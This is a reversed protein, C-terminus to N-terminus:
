SKKRNSERLKRVRKRYAENLTSDKTFNTSGFPNGVKIKSTKGQTITQKAAGGATNVVPTYPSKGDGGGGGGGGRRGRRGRRGKGKGDDDEEEFIGSDDKHGYDGIEGFPNEKEGTIVVYLAAKEEATKNPYEKEISEAVYELDWDYNKDHRIKYKSCFKNVRKDNWDFQKDSHGDKLCRAANMRTDLYPSAIYYSGDSFGKEAFIMAKDYDDLKSAWKKDDLQYAGSKGIEYAGENLAKFTEVFDKDTYGDEIYKHAREMGKKVSWEKQKICYANAIVGGDYGKKACVYAVYSYNVFDDRDGTERAIANVGKMTNLFAQQYKRKGKADAERYEKTTKLYNYADAHDGQAYKSLCKDTANPIKYKKYIDIIDQMPDNEVDGDKLATQYLKNKLSRLERKMQIKEKPSLNKESDVGQIASDYTFSADGYKAMYQNYKLTDEGDKKGKNLEDAKSWFQTGFKNSFVADKTFQQVVFNNKLFQDPSSWVESLNKKSTQSIGYDYILGLYSDMINDVKKPSINALKGMEKAFWSTTEDYNKWAEGNDINKLESRSLIDGGYWTKNMVTNLVPSFINDEWVNVIGINENASKFMQVFEDKTGYQANDLIYRTAYVFPEVLVSNERPKPIKIFKDKDGGFIAMPIFFNNDKDRTNLSQYAENDKCLIENAMSLSTTMLTLKIMFAALGKGKNETFMRAMKSLGQVSPNLYPVFGANLGKTVVGSRAFNVTIDSANRIATAIIDPKEKKIIDVIRQAYENEIWMTREADPLLKAEAEIERMLEKMGKSGLINKAEKQLTGIFECMRPMMEIFGNFDEIKELGKRITGGEKNLAGIEDLRNIQQLTSYRGGNADYLIRFANNENSVADLARPISRSFWLTDKSNVLAQQADRMGNRFGFIINWDTIFGKYERIHLLKGAKASVEMFTAYDQGSFERLGKAAQKSVPMKVLEGDKYFQINWKGNVEYANIATDLVDEPTAGKPVQSPDIGKARAYMNIMKNQEASSITSITMKALQTYLDEIDDLSGSAKRIGNQVEALTKPMEWMQPAKDVSVRNTPVYNPYIDNLQDLFEKNILGTDLRYKNIYDIYSRIEREFSKVVEEGYMDEVEKIYQDADANTWSWIRKNQGERAFAHKAYMYNSLRQRMETNAEELLNVKEGKYKITFVENLSKGLETGDASARHSEIAAASKNKAVVVNNAQDVLAQGLKRTEPDKSKLLQKGATEFEITSSEGKRRITQGVDKAAEKVSGNEEILDKVAKVVSGGKTKPQKAKLTNGGASEEFAEIATKGEPINSKSNNIVKTLRTSVRTRENKLERLKNATKEAGSGGKKLQKTLGSIQEDLEKVRKNLKRAEEYGYRKEKVIEAVIEDNTRVEVGREQAEKLLADAREQRANRKKISKDKGIRLTKKLTRYEKRLEDDSLKNPATENVVSKRKGDAIDIKNQNKTIKSKQASIKKNLKAIEDVDKSKKVAKQLEKIKDEATKINEKYTKKNAKHYEVEQKELTEELELRKAELEKRKAKKLKGSLREDLKKLEDKTANIEDATEGAPSNKKASYSANRGYYEDYDERMIEYKDKERPHSDLWKQDKDKRKETQRSEWEGKTHLYPVTGNEVLRDIGTNRFGFGGYEGRLNNRKNLLREYKTAVEDGDYSRILDIASYDDTDIGNPLDEKYRNIENTMNEWIEKYADSSAGEAFGEEHQIAHQIEHLLTNEIEDKTQNKNVRIFLANGIAFFEGNSGDLDTKTGFEVQVDKLQPYYNFLVEHDLLDGLRGEEIIAGSGKIDNMKFKLSMDKDSFEFKAKGDTDVVFGTKDFIEDPSSGDKFMQEALEGKEFDKGVAKKGGVAFSAQGEYLVKDRIADTIKAAWVEEGNEALKIKSVGEFEPDLKKMYKNMFKVMDQDYEIEYAGIYKDNWRDAQLKSTSWAVTTQGNEAAERIARKLAYDTYNKKYPADPIQGELKQILEERRVRYDSYLKQADELSRKTRLYEPDAMLVIDRERELRKIEENNKAVITNADEFAERWNARKTTSYAEMVLRDNEQRMKEIEKNKDGVLKESLDWLDNALRERNQEAEYIKSDLGNLEKATSEYEGRPMYADELKNIREKRKRALAANHWDSQIEEIFLVNETKMESSKAFSPISKEQALRHLEDVVTDAFDYIYVDDVRSIVNGTDTSVIEARCMDGDASVDIKVPLDSEDVSVPEGVGISQKDIGYDGYLEDRWHEIDDRVNDLVEINLDMDDLYGHEGSPVKTTFDQVRSHLVVGTDRVGKEEPPSFEDGWHWNMHTEYFESKPLIYEYERYNSGGYEKYDGWRAWIVSTIDNDVGTGDPTRTKVELELSNARIFDLLEEKSVSKRGDLLEEIGVLDVEERKVGSQEFFKRLGKADAARKEGDKWRKEVVEYMKSYFVPAYKNNTAFQAGHANKMMATSIVDDIKPDLSAKYAEDFQKGVSNIFADREAKPTDDLVKSFYTRMKEFTSMDEGALYAFFNNKEAYEAMLDAATEDDVSKKVDITGTELDDYVEKLEDRKANWEDEGVFSKITNIFNENENIALHSLEHAITTKVGRSNTTKSPNVLVMYGGDKTELTVGDFTKNNEKLKPFVEYAEEESMPRVIVNGESRDSAGSIVRATADDVGFQAKTAKIRAQKAKNVDAKTGFKKQFNVASDLHDLDITTNGGDVAKVALSANARAAEHAGSVKNRLNAYEGIEEPSLTLGKAQKAELTTIRKVDRASLVSKMVGGDSTVLKGKADVQVAGGVKTLIKNELESLRTRESSTLQVKESKEQLKALEKADIGSFNNAEFFEKNFTEKVDKSLANKGAKGTRGAIASIPAGLAVNLAANEAMYKGFDKGSYGDQIGKIADISTGISADQLANAVLERKINQKLDSSKIDKMLKELAKSRDGGKVTTEAFEKVADRVRAKGAKTLGKEGAEVGKTLAKGGKSLLTEAAKLSGKATAAYPLIYDIAENAFKASGKYIDKNSFKIKGANEVSKDLEALQKKVSESNDFNNGIDELYKKRYERYTMGNELVDDYKIGNASAFEDLDKAALNISETKANNIKKKEEEAQKEAQRTQRKSLIPVNDITHQKNSFGSAGAELIEEGAKELKKNTKGAWDAVGGKKYTRDGSQYESRVKSLAKQEKYKDTVKAKQTTNARSSIRTVHTAGSKGKNGKGASEEASRAAAGLVNVADRAHETAVYKGLNVVPNTKASQKSAKVGSNVTKKNAGHLRATNKNSSTSTTYTKGRREDGKSTNAAKGSRHKQTGTQKPTVTKKKKKKKTATTSKQARWASGRNQARLTHLQRSM